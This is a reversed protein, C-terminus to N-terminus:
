PILKQKRLEARVTQVVENVLAAVNDPNKTTTVGSWLLKASGVEYVNTEIGVITDVVVTGQYFASLGWDSSYYDWMDRYPEPGGRDPLYAAEAMNFLPRMVIAGDAGSEQVAAIVQERDKLTKEDPMLTFSMVVPVGGLNSRMAQEAERRLIHDPTAAIVVVKEFKLAGVEPATWSGGLNTSACGALALVLTAILVSFGFRHKM